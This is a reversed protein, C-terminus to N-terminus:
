SVAPEYCGRPPESTNTTEIPTQPSEKASGSDQIDQSTVRCETIDRSMGGNRRKWQRDADAQRRAALADREARAVAEVEVTRTREAMMQEVAFEIAEPPAGLERMRQMFGAISTVM